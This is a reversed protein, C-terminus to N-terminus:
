CLCPSIPFIGVVNNSIGRVHQPGSLEPLHTVSCHLRWILSLQPGTLGTLGALGTKLTLFLFEWFGNFFAWSLIVQGPEHGQLVQLLGQVQVQAQVQVQVELLRGGAQGQELGLGQLLPM